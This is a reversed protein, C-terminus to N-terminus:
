DQNGHSRCQKLEDFHAIYSVLGRSNPGELASGDAILDEKEVFDIPDLADKKWNSFGVVILASKVEINEPWPENDRDSFYSRNRFIPDSLAIYFKHRWYEEIEAFVTKYLDSEIQSVLKQARLIHRAATLWNLRNAEPPLRDGNSTLVDYAWQLSKQAQSVLEKDQDRMRDDSVKELNARYSRYAIVISVLTLASIGLKIIELLDINEM